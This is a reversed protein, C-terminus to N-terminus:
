MHAYVSFYLVLFALGTGPLVSSWVNRQKCSLCLGGQSGTHRMDGSVDQEHFCWWIFVPVGYSPSCLLFPWLEPFLCSVFCLVKQTFFAQYIVWDPDKVKVDQTGDCSPTPPRFPLAFALLQLSSNSINVIRVVDQLIRDSCLTLLGNKQLQLLVLGTFCSPMITHYMIASRQPVGLQLLVVFLCFEVLLHFM